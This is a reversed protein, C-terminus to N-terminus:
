MCTGQDIRRSVSPKVAIPGARGEDETDFPVSAANVLREEVGTDMGMGGRRPAEKTGDRGVAKIDEYLRRHADGM